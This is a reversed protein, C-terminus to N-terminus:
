WADWGRSGGPRFGVDGGQDTPGFVFGGRSRASEPRPPERPPERGPGASGTRRVGSVEVGLDAEDVIGVLRGERDTVPLRSVRRRHMVERVEDIGDNKNVAEFDRSMCESLPTRHDKGRAVALAVIDHETLVGILRGSARSDVVPLLGARLATMRQAAAEITTEPTLAEPSKTM